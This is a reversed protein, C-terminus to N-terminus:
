PVYTIVGGSEDSLHLLNLGPRSFTLDGASFAGSPLPWSFFEEGNAGFVHIQTRDLVFIQGAANLAFARPEIQPHLVDEWTINSLREGSFHLLGRQIGNIWAIWIVGKHVAIDVPDRYELDFAGVPSIAGSFRAVSYVRLQGDTAIYFRRQSDQALRVHSSTSVWNLFSPVWQININRSWEIPIIGVRGISDLGSIYARSFAGVEELSSPGVLDVSQPRFYGANQADSSVLHHSLTNPMDASLTHQLYFFLIQNPRVILALLDAEGYPDAISLRMRENTGSLPDVVYRGSERYFQMRVSRSTHKVGTSMHSRIAYIYPRNDPISRDLFSTQQPDQTVFITEYDGDAPARIVEYTLVEGAEVKWILQVDFAIPNRRIERLGAGPILVEVASTSVLGGESHEAVVRYQLREGAFLESDQFVGATAYRGNTSTGSTREINRFGSIDRRQLVFNEVHKQGLYEWRVVVMGTNTDYNANTIHIIPTNYPDISLDRQPNYCGVLIGMAYVFVLHLYPNKM